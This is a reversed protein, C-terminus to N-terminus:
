LKEAEGSNNIKKRKKKDNSYVACTITLTVIFLVAGYAAYYIMREMKPADTIQEWVEAPAIVRDTRAANYLDIEVSAEDVLYQFMGSAETMIFHIEYRNNEPVDIVLPKAVRADACYVYRDLFQWGEPLELNNKDYEIYNFYIKDIYIEAATANSNVTQLPVITISETQLVQREYYNQTLVAGYKIPYVFFIALSVLLAILGIKVNEVAGLKNNMVFYVCCISLYIWGLIWLCVTNILFLNSHTSWCLVSLLVGSLVMSCLIQLIKRRKEKLMSKRKMQKYGLHSESWEKSELKADLSSNM